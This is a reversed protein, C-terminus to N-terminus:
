EDEALLDLIVSFRAASTEVAFEVPARPWETTISWTENPGPGSSSPTHLEEGAFRVAAIVGRAALLRLEVQGRDFVLRADVSLPALRGLAISRRDRTSSDAAWAASPRIPLRAITQSGDASLASLVSLSVAEGARLRKAILDDLVRRLRKSSRLMEPLRAVEVGNAVLRIVWADPPLVDSMETAASALAVGAVLQEDDAGRECSRVFDRWVDSRLLEANPPQVLLLTM